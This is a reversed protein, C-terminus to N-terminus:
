QNKGPPIYDDLKVKGYRKAQNAYEAECSPCKYYDINKHVATAVLVVPPWCRPCLPFGLTRALGAEAIQAKKTAEEMVTAAAKKEPSDPLMDKAAKFMGISEKFLSFSLRADNVYQTFENEMKCRLKLITHRV